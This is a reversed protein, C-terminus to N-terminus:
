GTSRVPKNHAKLEEISYIGRVWLIGQVFGLWRMSKEIRGQRIHNELEDLMYLAHKFSREQRIRESLDIDVYHGRETELKLRRKSPYQDAGGHVMGNLKERYKGILEKLKDADV